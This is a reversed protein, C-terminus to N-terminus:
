TKNSRISYGFSVKHIHPKGNDHHIKIAHTGSLPRQKKIEDVVPQLYNKIHYQHDVTQEPEIHHLEPAVNSL